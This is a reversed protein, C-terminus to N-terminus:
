DDASDCWGETVFYWPSVLESYEVFRLSVLDAFAKDMPLDLKPWIASYLSWFLQSDGGFFSSLAERLDSRLEKTVLKLSTNSLQDFTDACEYEECFVDFNIRSLRAAEFGLFFDSPGISSIVSSPDFDNYSNGSAAEFGHLWECLTAVFATGRQQQFVECEIAEADLDLAHGLITLWTEAKAYEPEVQVGMRIWDSCRNQNLNFVSEPKLSFVKRAKGSDTNL